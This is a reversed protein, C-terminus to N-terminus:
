LIENLHGLSDIIYTPKIASNILADKRYKGTRVLISKMGMKHAGGIDTSIDDGIMAVQDTQLGMDRLANEFFARSPKGIITASKGSAFELADVFPGASLSLGEPAMWYKDKELAILEAGDMLHRFAANLSSYTIREGADGIVVCDIREQPARVEAQGFDREVDGTILLYGNQKGTNKMYALAAVPPTFIDKERIVFGMEALQEVISRRSKRTTNSIFRVQYKLKRLLGITEAAGEIAMDGIYLVGDLDILFGKIDRM